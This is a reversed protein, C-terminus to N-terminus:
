FVRKLRSFVILRKILCKFIVTRWTWIQNSRVEVALHRTTIECWSDMEIESFTSATFDSSMKYNLWYWRWIKVFPFDIRVVFSQVIVLTAYHNSINVPEQVKTPNQNWHLHKARFKIVLIECNQKFFLYINQEVLFVCKRKQAPYVNNSRIM